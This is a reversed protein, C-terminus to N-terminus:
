DTWYELPWDPFVLQAFSPFDLGAFTIGELEANVCKLVEIQYREPISLTLERTHRIMNPVQYNIEKFGSRVLKGTKVGIEKGQANVKNVYEDKIKHVYIVNCNSKFAARIIHGRFEANVATYQNPPVQELKGFRALRCTEWAESASDIVITRYPEWQGPIVKGKADRKPRGKTLAVGLDAKFPKWAADDCAKAITASDTSGAEAKDYSYRAQDVRHLQLRVATEEKASEFGRDLILYALPKPASLAFDSKGSGELGETSLILRPAEATPEYPALRSATVVDAV